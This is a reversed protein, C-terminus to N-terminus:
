NIKVLKKVGSKVGDKIKQAEIFYVGNNLHGMDLESTNSGTWLVRGDISYLTIISEDDVNVKLKGTTPNPYVSFSFVNLVKNQIGASPIIFVSFDETQGDSLDSCADVIPVIDSKIRMRLVTNTKVGTAPITISAIHTEENVTGSHAYIKEAAQFIGDDNYDIWAAVNQPSAITSISLDYSKGAQIQAIDYLCTRDLYSKYADMFYGLSASELNSFKVVCPGINGISAANLINPICATKPGVFTADPPVAGLSTILGSRYNRLTFLIRKRQDPTFRAPCDTYNMFNDEVGGFFTGTCGNVLGKTCTFTGGFVHPETDCLEDGASLCSATGHCGDQFTHYLGFSHGVEHAITYNYDGSIKHAYKIDIVAGDILSPENFWPWPAYGGVLGGEIGNVFWINYYDSPPWVSLSKMEIDSVGSVTGSPSVGFASYGALVSGDVRVIGNTAKCEPDRKALVFKIPIKTGGAGVSAFTPWTTEWTKNLFDILNEIEFNTPNLYTGIVDGTHVIHVVVPIEYSKDAGSVIIKAKSLNKNFDVWKTTAKSKQSGYHPNKQYIFKELNDNGCISQAFLFSHILLFLILFFFHRKM